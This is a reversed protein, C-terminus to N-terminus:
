SSIKLEDSIMAANSPMLYKSKMICWYISEIFLLVCAVTHIDHPCFACPPCTSMSGNWTSALALAGVGGIM